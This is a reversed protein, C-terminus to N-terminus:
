APSTPPAACALPSCALSSCRAAPWALPRSPAWIGSLICSMPWAEPSPRRGANRGHLRWRYLLSRVLRLLSALVQAFNGDVHGSIFGLIILGPGFFGTRKAIHSHACTLSMAAQTCTAGLSTIQPSITAKCHSSLCTCAAFHWCSIDAKDPLKQSLM